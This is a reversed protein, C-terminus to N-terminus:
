NVGYLRYSKCQKTFTYQDDYTESYKKILSISERQKHNNDFKCHEDYCLVCYANEPGQRCISCPKIDWKTNWFEDYERKGCKICYLHQKCVKGSDM